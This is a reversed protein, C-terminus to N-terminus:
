PLGFWGQLYGAALVAVIGATAAIVWSLATPVIWSWATPKKDRFYIAAFPLFRHHAKNVLLTLVIVVGLLIARDRLTDLSPLLVLAGLLMAQNFGFGLRKINTSYSREYPRVYGKLQELMGLVWAKDPGQTLAFNVTPGFELTAARNLGGAPEQIHLKVIKAREGSFHLRKFDELFCTQATQEEVTAVLRGKDFESQMAEAIRILQDHTIEIATFDHRAVHLQDLAQRTSEEASQPVDHSFLVFTGAAGIDTEWRGRLEGRADLFACATLRGVPTGEPYKSPNGSLILQNEVFKGDISYVVIGMTPDNFHVSGSLASDDGNLQVFINGTNTGYARGAWWRGIAM